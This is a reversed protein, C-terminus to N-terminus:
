LLLYIAEMLIFKNIKYKSFILHWITWYFSYYVNACDLFDFFTLTGLVQFFSVIIFKLLRVSLNLLFVGEFVCVQEWLTHGTDSTTEDSFWLSMLLCFGDACGASIWIWKSECLRACVRDSRMGVIQRGPALIHLPLRPCFFFILM